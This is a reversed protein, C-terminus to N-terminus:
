VDNPYEKLCGLKDDWKWCDTRCRHEKYDWVGNGSDLCKDALIKDSVEPIFNLAIYLFVSSFFIVYFVKQKKVYFTGVFSFLCVIINFVYVILLYQNIGITLLLDVSTILILSVLFLLKIIVKGIKFINKKDM